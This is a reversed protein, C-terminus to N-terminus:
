FGVGQDGGMGAGGGVWDWCGGGGPRVISDGWFDSGWGIGLLAVICLCGSAEGGRRPRVLELDAVAVDAFSKIILNHPNERMRLSLRAERVRQAADAHPTLSQRAAQIATAAAAKAESAV